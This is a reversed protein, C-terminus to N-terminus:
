GSCTRADMLLFGECLYVRKKFSFVQVEELDRM